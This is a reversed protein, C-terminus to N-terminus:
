VVSKRDQPELDLLYGIAAAPQAAPEAPTVPPLQEVSGPAERWTTGDFVELVVTRWYLDPPAIDAADGPDKVGFVARFVAADSLTQGEIQAPNLTTAMGASGASRSGAFFGVPMRPFLLFLLAIVPLSALLLRAVAGGSRAVDAATRASDGRRFANAQALVAILLVAFVYSMTEVRQSAVLLPLMLPLTIATALTTDRRVRAVMALGAAFGLFVLAAGAVLWDPRQELWGQVAFPVMAFVPAVLWTEGPPARRLWLCAVRVVLGGIFISGIGLGVRLITPLTALTLAILLLGLSWPDLPSRQSDRAIAQAHRPAGLSLRFRTANVRRGAVLAAVRTAHPM